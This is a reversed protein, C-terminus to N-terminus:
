DLVWRKLADWNAGIWTVGFTIGSSIMGVAALAGVGRQEWKRAREVFPKIEEVDAKMEATTREVAAIRENLRTRNEATARAEAKQQDVLQRMQEIMMDLKGELRGISRDQNSDPM